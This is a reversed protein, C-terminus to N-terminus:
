SVSITLSVFFVANNKENSFTTWTSHCILILIFKIIDQYFKEFSTVKFMSIQVTFINYNLYIKRFKIEADNIVQM